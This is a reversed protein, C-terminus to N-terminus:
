RSDENKASIGIEKERAEETAERNRTCVSNSLSLCRSFLSSSMRLLIEKGSGSQRSTKKRSQNRNKKREGREESSTLLRFLIEGGARISKFTSAVQFSFFTKRKLLGRQEKARRPERAGPIKRIHRGQRSHTRALQIEQRRECQLM